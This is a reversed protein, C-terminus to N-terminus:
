SPEVARDRGLRSVRSRQSIAQFLSCFSGPDPNGPVSEPAGSNVTQLSEACLPVLM